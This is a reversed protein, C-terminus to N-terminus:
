ITTTCKKNNGSLNVGGRCSCPKDVIAVILVGDRALKAEVPHHPLDSHGLM